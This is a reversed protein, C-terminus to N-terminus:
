GAIKLSSPDKEMHLWRRQMKAVGITSKDEEYNRLYDKKNTMNSTSGSDVIWIESSEMGKALFSVKDTDDQKGEKKKRYFCDKDVYNNRKCINCFTEIKEKKNNCSRAIHGTKNCKFCRVEINNTHTKVRCDKAIHGSKHCKHCKRNTARFAVAKEETQSEASRMKEAILRATLNDLTRDRKATSEWASAFYKFSLPLTALIKSIIM